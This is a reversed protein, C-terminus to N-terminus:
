FGDKPNIKLYNSKDMCDTPNPNLPLEGALVPQGNKNYKTKLYKEPDDYNNNSSFHDLSVVIHLHKNPVDIDSYANGSKGTKGIIQSVNISDGKNLNLSSNYQLHCYQMSFNGSKIIIYNGRGKKYDSHNSNNNRISLITGGYIAKCKTGINAKLDTGGHWKKNNNRSCGFRAGQINGSKTPCLKPNSFPDQPEM